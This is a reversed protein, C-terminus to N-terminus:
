LFAEEAVQGLEPEVTFERRKILRPAESAPQRIAPEAVPEFSRGAAVEKALKAKRRGEVMAAIHEASLVKRPRLRQVEPLAAFGSIEIPTSDQLIFLAKTIASIQNQLRERETLLAKISRDLNM